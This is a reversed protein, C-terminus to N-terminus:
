QSLSHARWECLTLCYKFLLRETSTRQSLFCLNEARAIIDPVRLASNLIRAGWRHRGTYARPCSEFNSVHM